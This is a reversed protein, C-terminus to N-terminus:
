KINGLVFGGAFSGGLDHFFEAGAHAFALLFEVNHVEATRRIGM